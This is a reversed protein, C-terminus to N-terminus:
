LLFGRVEGWIKPIMGFNKPNKPIKQSQNPTMGIWDWFIGFSGLFEQIFNKMWFIRPHKQISGLLDWFIGLKKPDHPIFGLFIPIMGFFNPDNQSPKPPCGRVEDWIKPIIGFNKPDKPIKKSQAPTMGIWDWFIGFFGLFEQIFNKM